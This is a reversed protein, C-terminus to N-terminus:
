RVSTHEAPSWPAVPAFNLRCLQPQSVKESIYAWPHITHTQKNKHHHKKEKELFTYLSPLLTSLSVIEFLIFPTGPRKCSFCLRGWFSLSCSFIPCPYTELQYINWTKEKGQTKEREQCNPNCCTQPCSKDGKTIQRSKPSFTRRWTCDGQLISCNSIRRTQFIIIQSTCTLDQRTRFFLPFIITKVPWARHWGRM